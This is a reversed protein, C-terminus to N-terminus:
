FVTSGKIQELPLGSPDYVYATSGDKLLLPLGSGVDWLFQSTTGSV